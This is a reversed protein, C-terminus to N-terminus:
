IEQTTISQKNFYDLIYQNIIKEEIGRNHIKFTLEVIEDIIISLNKSSFTKNIIQKNSTLHEIMEKTNMQDFNKILQSLEGHLSDNTSFDNINNINLNLPQENSLRLTSKYDDIQDRETLITTRKVIANLKAVVQNM